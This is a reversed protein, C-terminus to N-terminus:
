TKVGKELGLRPVGKKKEFGDLFEGKRKEGEEFLALQKTGGM